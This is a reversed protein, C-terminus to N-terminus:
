SLAFFGISIFLAQSALAGLFNLLLINWLDSKVAFIMAPIRTFPFFRYWFMGFIGFKKLINTIKPHKELKTVFKYLSARIVFFFSIDVIFSIITSFLIASFFMGWNECYNGSVISLASNEVVAGSIAFVLYKKSNFWAYVVTQCFWQVVSLDSLWEVFYGWYDQLYESISM